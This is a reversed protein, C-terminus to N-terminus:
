LLKGRSQMFDIPDQAGKRLNCNPCLLQLNFRDNGGGKSIPVIHDVHYGDSLSVKCVACKSKQLLLINKVEDLTHTGNSKNIRARRNRYRILKQEKQSSPYSAIKEPNNKRYERDYELIRDKNDQYYQRHHEKYYLSNNKRYESIKSARSARYEKFYNSLKEANAKRYEKQYEADREKKTKIRDVEVISDNELNQNFNIESM